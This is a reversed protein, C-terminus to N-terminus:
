AIALVRRIHDHAAPWDDIRAHADPAAPILGRLEPDAIMHLRHVEPAHKAVSGHHPPLDDIFVAASPQREAILAAVPPGKPGRNCLVEYPMGHRALEAGRRTRIMDKVNTLIVIDAAQALSALAAVAGAAPYQTELHTEFFGDLLPEVDAQTIGAGGDRRRISGALSFSDFRLDMDHAAALYGRFPDAFHLLVEDCDCIILPRPM